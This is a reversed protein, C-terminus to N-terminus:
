PLLTVVRLMRWGQRWILLTIIVAAGATVVLPVSATRGWLNGRDLFLYRVMLAPFILISACLAHLAALVPSPQAAARARLWLSMLVLGAPVAPLVYGPLKSQSISFFVLIVAIWILLFTNLQDSDDGKIRRLSWLLAAVVLASWPMWG